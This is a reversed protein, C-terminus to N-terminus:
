IRKAVNHFMAIVLLISSEYLSDKVKISQESNCNVILYLSLLLPIAKSSLWSDMLSWGPRWQLNSLAQASSIQISEVLQFQSVRSSHSFKHIWNRCNLLWNGEGFLLVRELSPPNCTVLEFMQLIGSTIGAFGSPWKNSARLDSGSRCSSGRFLYACGFLKFM